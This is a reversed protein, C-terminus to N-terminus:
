KEIRMCMSNITLDRRKLDDELSVDETEVDFGKYGDGSKEETRALAWEDGESDLFVPFSSANTPEFGRAKMTEETEGVVLFDMDNPELGMIVDRPFGGVCYSNNPVNQDIRDFHERVEEAARALRKSIEVEM